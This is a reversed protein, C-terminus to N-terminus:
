EGFYFKGSVNDTILVRSGCDKIITINIKEMDPKTSFVEFAVNLFFNFKEEDSMELSIIKEVKM